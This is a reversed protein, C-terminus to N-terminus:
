PRAIFYDLNESGRGSRNHYHGAHGSDRVRRRRPVRRQARVQILPLPTQQQPHLGRSSPRPPILATASAVPTCGSVTARPTRSSSPPAPAPPAPARARRHGCSASRSRDPASTRASPTPPDPSGRRDSTAAPTSSSTSGCGPRRASRPPADPTPGSPPASAARAHPEAQLGVGLDDLAALVGVPVGLEAVEVGRDALVEGGPCGTIETSVLFFSSTPSNLFPPRSYWGLPEGTRTSRARSGPCPAPCPSGRRCRRRRRRVGAPHRDAGVVVGGREGHLRRRRQHSVTPGAGSGPRRGAASRRRRRRSWRSGPGRRSSRARRAEGGLGAQRDGDAVQRRAGALPVLDLVPQEGLDGHVPAAPRQGAVLDDDVQDAGGGGRGPEGDAGVEVGAGVGGADSVRLFCTSARGM